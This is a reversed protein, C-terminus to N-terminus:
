PRARRPRSGRTGRRPSRRARRDPGRIRAVRRPLRRRTARTGPRGSAAGSGRSATARAPGWALAKRFYAITEKLGDELGVKPAWGSKEKALRIEPQRQMPDDEPAPLYKLKSKGGTLRLVSEAIQRMTFEGSNGICVPCALNYLQEVEVYLAFTVDHGEGVLRECLHSGLFGAGGTVMIKKM